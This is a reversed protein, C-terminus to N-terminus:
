RLTRAHQPRVPALPLTAIDIGKSDPLDAPDVGRADQHVAAAAVVTNSMAKPQAKAELPTTPAIRLLSPLETAAIPRSDRVGVGLQSLQSLQGHRAKDAVMLFGLVIAFVALGVLAWAIAARAQANTAAPYMSSERVGYAGDIPVEVPYYSDHRKAEDTAQTQPDTHSPGANASSPVPQQWGYARFPVVPTPSAPRPPPPVARYRLQSQWAPAPSAVDTPSAVDAARLQPPMPQTSPPDEDAEVIRCPAYTAAAQLVDRM